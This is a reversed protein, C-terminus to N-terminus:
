PRDGREAALVAPYAPTRPDIIDFHGIGALERYEVGTLAWTTLNSIGCMM